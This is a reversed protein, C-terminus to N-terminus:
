VRALENNVEKWDNSEITDTGSLMTLHVAPLYILLPQVVQKTSTVYGFAIQINSGM